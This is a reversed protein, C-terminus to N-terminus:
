GPHNSEALAAFTDYAWQDWEERVGIGKLDSYGHAIFSRNQRSFLDVMRGASEIILRKNGTPLIKQIDVPSWLCVGTAKLKTALRELGYLEPQDFQFASIDVEALDDLIDWNYGCSHMLVKIGAKNAVGCLRRFLPKFIERWMVPSILLRNQIGWDECFFVGDAGAAAYRKIMRELLGTVKDHLEDIHERELILDQFYIEMKRLYRCIAFPFGPLSGGLRYKDPASEFAQKVSIYRAPNDLDPLHWDKLQAWDQLAPKYIEGKVSTNVLRHCANGWEDTYFETKGTVWCQPTWGTSPSIKARVFDNQRNGDFHMGFRGAGKGALNCKIIERSTM